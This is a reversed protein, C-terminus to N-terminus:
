DSKEGTELSLRFVATPVGPSEQDLVALRRGDPFWSLYAQHYTVPPGHVETLKRERRGIAPVIFVGSVGESLIRLFAISRADPSWAPSFEDAADYTLRTPEENSELPKVFIDFNGDQSNEGSNWAFAVYNGDPSFSPSVESGAYSTLPVPLRPLRNV